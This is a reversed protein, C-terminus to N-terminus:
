QITPRFLTGYRYEPMAEKLRVARTGYAGAVIASSSAGNLNMSFCAIVTQNETGETAESKILRPASKGPLMGVNRQLRNQPSPKGCASWRM